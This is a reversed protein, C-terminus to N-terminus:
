RGRTERKDGERSFKIMVEKKIVKECSKSQSNAEEEDEV